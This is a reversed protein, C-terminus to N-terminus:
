PTAYGYSMNNCIFCEKEARRIYEQIGRANQYIDADVKEQWEKKKAEAWEKNNVTLFNLRDSAVLENLLQIGLMYLVTLSMRQAILCTMKETDCQLSADLRIGRYSTLLSTGAMARIKLGECGCSMCDSECFENYPHINGVYPLVDANEFYINVKNGTTSYNIEILTELDATLDVTRTVPNAGDTITIVLGSVSSASKVYIREVVLKTLQGRKREIEIGRRQANGDISKDDFDPSILSDVSHGVVNDFLVKSFNNKLDLFVLELKENLLAQANIANGTTFSAINKVSLGELMDIYLGSTPATPQCKKSLGIFNNVCM